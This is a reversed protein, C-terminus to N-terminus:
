ATVVVPGGVMPEERDWLVLGRVTTGRAALAEMLAQLAEVRTGGLAVCVIVTGGAREVAAAIAGGTAVPANVVVCEYRRAVHELTRALREDAEAPAGEAGFSGSALVDMTRSRGVVVSSIAEAWEAREALVDAVGPVPRVRTIAAVSHTAFDTDVVLTTRV